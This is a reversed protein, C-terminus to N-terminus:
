GETVSSRPGNSPMACNACTARGTTRCCPTKAEKTLGAPPRAFSRSIDSSLCRYACSTAGETACRPILDRVGPLRYYLDERFSGREVAKRLERNTGRDGARESSQGPAGLRQFEREQLVRLFKAQASPSM